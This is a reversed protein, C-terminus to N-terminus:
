GLLDGPAAHQRSGCFQVLRGQLLLREDDVQPERELRVIQGAGVARLTELPVGVLLEQSCVFRGGPDRGFQCRGVDADEGLSADIGVDPRGKGRDESGMLDCSGDDGPDGRGKGDFRSRAM